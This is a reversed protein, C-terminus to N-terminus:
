FSPLNHVYIHYYMHFEDIGTDESALSYLTQSCHLTQAETGTM